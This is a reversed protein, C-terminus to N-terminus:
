NWFFFTSEKRRDHTKNVKELIKHQEDMINGVKKKVEESYTLVKRSRASVHRIYELHEQVQRGMEDMSGEYDTASGKTYDILVDFDEKLINNKEQLMQNEARLRQLEKETENLVTNDAADDRDIDMLNNSVSVGSSVTPKVGSVLDSIEMKDM